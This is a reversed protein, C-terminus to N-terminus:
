QWYGEMIMKKNDMSAIMTIIQQTLTSLLEEEQGMMFENRYQARITAYEIIVYDFDHVWDLKGDLTYVSQVPAYIVMWQTTKLPEPYLFIDQGLRYYEVPSAEKIDRPLTARYTMATGDAYVAHVKMPIESLKIQGEGSERKYLLNPKYQMVTKRLYANAENIWQLLEEDSYGAKDTDSINTRIQKIIDEIATM